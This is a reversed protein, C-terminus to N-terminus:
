SRNTPGGGFNMNPFNPNDDKIYGFQQEYRQVNETLARLLRIANQPTM